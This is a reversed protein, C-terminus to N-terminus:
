LGDVIKRIQIDANTVIRFSVRRSAKKNERGNKYHKLKSSALGVASFSNKIWRRYTPGINTHYYIYSLVSRTRNQSLAMNLFYATDVNTNNRWESSTHGEIRVESIGAKYERLVGLYRPIFDKLIRKFQPKLTSKGTAFLVDPSNFEFALTQENISADWKDLNNSFEKNLAQYIEIQKEEYEVAIDKIKNHVISTQRMYAIAIFLFVMMLGAMLDSISLWHEGNDELKVAPSGFIKDLKSM